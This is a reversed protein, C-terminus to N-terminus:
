VSGGKEIQDRHKGLGWGGDTKKIKRERKKRWGGGLRMHWGVEGGVEWYVVAVLVDGTSLVALM